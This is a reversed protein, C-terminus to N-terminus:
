ILIGLVTNNISTGPPSIRKIVTSNMGASDQNNSSGGAGLGEIAKKSQNSLLVQCDISDLCVALVSVCTLEQVRDLGSFPIMEEVLSSQLICM